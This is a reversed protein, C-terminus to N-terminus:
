VCSHSSSTVREGLIAALVYMCILWSFVWDLVMLDYSPSCIRVSLLSMIPMLNSRLVKSLVSCTKTGVFILGERKMAGLLIVPTYIGHTVYMVIVYSCISMCAHYVYM